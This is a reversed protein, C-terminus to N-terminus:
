ELRESGEEELSNLLSLLKVVVFLTHKSESLLDTHSNVLPNTAAEKLAVLLNEQALKGEADHL